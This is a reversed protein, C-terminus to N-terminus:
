EGKIRAMGDTAYQTPGKLHEEFELACLGVSTYQFQKLQDTKGIIDL